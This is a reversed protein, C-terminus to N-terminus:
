KKEPAALFKAFGASETVAEKAEDSDKAVLYMVASQSEILKLAKAPEIVSAVKTLADAQWGKPAIVTASRRGTLGLGTKPDLLHSYRVGDIEVHQFLDGSTSVSQNALKLKRAPRDKTIPAIEVDWGDKDPPADGVTIDGSAAILARPCGQEKLVELAKDAAYGKGIGGLDLRMKAKALTVTSANADLMMLKFGVLEKAAALYQAAPKEKVKRAVRWLKVLQGVTIDFAGDSASSVAHAKKLVDFLDSSVRIPKGPDADNAAFVKMLESKPNYDSMVLELEAIRAFAAKSAKEATPKDPAFLVIRWETGMHIARFEHRAPSDACNSSRDADLQIRLAPMLQVDSRGLPGAKYLGPRFGQTQRTTAEAGFPGVGEPHPDDTDAVWPKRGPSYLAAGNPRLVACWPSSLSAGDPLFPDPWETGMHVARFEHRAPPDGAHLAAAFGIIHLFALISRM